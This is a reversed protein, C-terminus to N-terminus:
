VTELIKAMTCEYEGQQKYYIINYIALMIMLYLLQKKTSAVTKYLVQSGGGNVILNFSVDTQGGHEDDISIIVTYSGSSDWDTKWTM